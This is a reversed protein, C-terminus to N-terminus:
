AAEQDKRVNLFDRKQTWRTLVREAHAFWKSGSEHPFLRRSEGTNMSFRKRASEIRPNTVTVPRGAIIRLHPKASM